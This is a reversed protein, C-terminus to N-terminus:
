GARRNWFMIVCVVWSLHLELKREDIGCSLAYKELLDNIAFDKECNCYACAEWYEMIQKYLKDVTKM